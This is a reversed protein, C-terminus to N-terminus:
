LGFIKISIKKSLITRSIYILCICGIITLLTTVIQFVPQLFSLIASYSLLSTIEKLMVRHILYIGFSYNGILLLTRNWKPIKTKLWLFLSIASLAYIYSSLKVATTAYKISDFYRLMLIAEVCSLLLGVFALVAFWGPRCVLKRELTSNSGLLLGYQYFVIWSYCPLAYLVFPIDVLFVLRVVYFGVLILLNLSLIARFGNKWENIRMLVPTLIYYQSVLLMFYYPSSAGGTFLKYLLVKIDIKGSLVGSILLLFMSWVFYPILVRALRKKVVTIYNTREIRKKAIFYGSVFLFAPVSFNLVQRFFM